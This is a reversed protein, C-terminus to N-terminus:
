TGKKKNRIASPVIQMIAQSLPRKATIAHAATKAQM